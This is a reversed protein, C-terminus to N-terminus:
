AGHTFTFALTAIGAAKVKDLGKYYGILLLYNDM